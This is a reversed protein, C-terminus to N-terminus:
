GSAVHLFCGQRSVDLDSMLRSQLQLARFSTSECGSRCHTSNLTRGSEAAM